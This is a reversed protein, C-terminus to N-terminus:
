SRTAEVVPKADPEGILVLAELIEPDGLCDVAEDPDDIGLSKLV